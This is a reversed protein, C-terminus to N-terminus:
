KKRLCAYFFGDMEDEGPLISYGTASAGPRLSVALADPQRTLFGAVQRENEESLISCTVYLLKGGPALCPWVGDLIRAQAASLKPLDEPRRRVKIDPHRRIVGTASCPADVLIRTFPRGDWWHQPEAADAALLQARLGLRGLNEGVKKLREADADLAVLESPGDARELIHATKGGPAACADLVRDMPGAELWTAALQAGADQVSVSGDRFGPVREVPLPEDLVLATDVRPHVHAAIGNEALRALYDARTLRATNVRLTMPPRANNADLVQQWHRPHDRKIADILWAPHSYRLETSGAIASEVGAAERMSARLCANILGKAWAKHLVDAAAVTANVAAYAPVRMSRLQYLGLLLLAHLDTDKAKLPRALFLAAIGALQHYWRLTGYCLEQILAADPDEPRARRLEDLAADLYRGEVLVQALVRAASARAAAATTPATSM